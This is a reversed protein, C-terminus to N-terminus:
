KQAQNDVDSLWAIVTRRSVQLTDAIRQKSMGQQRLEIAREQREERGKAGKMRGREKQLEPTHTRDILESLSAPTCNKWTWRAISKAIGRVESTSLANLTYLEANQAEALVAIAAEFREYGNPAWYDRVARYAQQRVADFLGCNRGLSYTEDNSAARRQYASVGKLDVYEALEDLTYPEDRLWHTRWKKHAPNKVLLGAYAPDAKLARGYAHEIAALYRASKREDGLAVPFALEYCAHANGSAPNIAIWSPPPLGADEHVHLPSWFPGANRPRDLDFVLRFVVTPANPQIHEFTLAQAAKRVTMGGARFDNACYPKRPLRDISFLASATM